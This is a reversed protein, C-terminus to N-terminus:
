GRSDLVRLLNGGMIADTEPGTVAIGQLVDVTQAFSVHELAPPADSGWYLRDPGFRELLVSVFPRAPEHPWAHPPDTAAYLASLKVGVNPRSALALLIDLRDAVEPATPPLAHPGPLGLHSFLVTCGGLADAFREIGPMAAPLANISVIARHENLATLAADPWAALRGADGPELVYLSIGAFGRAWLGSLDPPPGVPVFGVPTMWDNDAALGALHDNNGKFRDGLEMGVVLGREIGHAARFAEYRALEDAAAWRADYRENFGPSFLHLHADALAM